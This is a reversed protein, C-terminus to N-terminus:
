PQNKLATIEAKLEEIQTQQEQLAKILMPIFVTYKVSKTKTDLEKGNEDMDVTESVMSPFIQELEQAVVGLLKENPNTKLNYNVVRVQNLKDLKPTADTINEKLKIDSIAGYSNNTNTINGNGLINFCNGSSNTGYVFYSSGSNTNPLQWAFVRGESTTGNHRFAGAYFNNATDLAQFSHSTGTLSSTTGVLLAGSSNIRMAESGDVKFIMQSTYITLASDVVNDSSNRDRICM